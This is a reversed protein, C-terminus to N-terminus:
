QNLSEQKNDLNNQYYEMLIQRAVEIAEQSGNNADEIGVLLLFEPGSAPYYCVFWGMVRGESLQATGTKGALNLGPIYATHALATEDQVTVKLVDQLLTLNESSAITDKWVKAKEEISLLVPKRLKGDTAIASYIIALHLPTMLIQGQGYGTDALLITNTIPKRSALTSYAVDLTFPIKQGFGVREAIKFLPESGMRYALQAFYINDSWKMAGYLDVPGTPRSVRKVRYSGWGPEARWTDESIEVKKEPDYEPYFELAALATLPKFTSGPIYRGQIPRNVLPKAPDNLIKSLHTSSKGLLFENVDYGPFSGLALIEGTEPVMAIVVGSREGMALESIKQLRQDITLILDNGKQSRTFKVMAQEKGEKDLIRIMYGPKGALFKEFKKELGTRGVKDGLEYGETAWDQLEKQNIEGLYGVTPALSKPGFYVRGEYSSALVGPIALFKDKKTLWEDKTISRLPVFLDPRVWKQQLAQEIREPTMDLLKALSNIAEDWNEMKGPVLGIRYIIGPGVLKEGNRDYINGREAPLRTVALSYSLDSLQPLINTSKWDIRWEKEEYVLHLIQDMNIEGVTWTLMKGKVPIEVRNDKIEWKQGDAPRVMELKLEIKGLQEYTERYRNVFFDKKVRAKAESSLMQYIEEYQGNELGRLFVQATEDPDPRFFVCGSILLIILIMLLGISIKKRM